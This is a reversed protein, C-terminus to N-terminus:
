RRPMGFTPSRSSSPSAAREAQAAGRSRPATWPDPRRTASAWASELYTEVTQTLEDVKGDFFHNAGEVVQHEIVVGKQTKVKEIVPMVERAPAVRDESGHVFLGLVPM